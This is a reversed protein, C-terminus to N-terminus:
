RQKIKLTLTSPEKEMGQVSSKKVNENGQLILSYTLQFCSNLTIKKRYFGEKQILFSLKHSILLTSPTITLIFEIIYFYFMIM